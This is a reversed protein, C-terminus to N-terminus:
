CLEYIVFVHRLFHLHSIREDEPSSEKTWGLIRHSLRASTLYAVFPLAFWFSSQEFFGRCLSM